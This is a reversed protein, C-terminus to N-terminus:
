YVDIQTANSLKTIMHYNFSLVLDVPASACPKKKLNGRHKQVRATQLKCNSNQFKHNTNIMVLSKRWNKEEEIRLNM